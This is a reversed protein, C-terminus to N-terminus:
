AAGGDVVSFGGAQRVGAAHKRCAAIIDSLEGLRRDYAQAEAPTIKGDALAAAMTAMMDGAKRCLEAYGRMIDAEAESAEKPDSLRHGSLEALAATMLPRGTEAELVWLSALGMLDPCEANNWRGVETKSYGVIKAAREIGGAAAIMDRQAAKMRYHRVQANPVM